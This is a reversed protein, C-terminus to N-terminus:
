DCSARMKTISNLTGWTDFDNARRPNGAGFTVATSGTTVAPALLDTVMQKTLIGKKEMAATDAKASPDTKTAERQANVLDAIERLSDNIHRSEAHMALVMNVVVDENESDKRSFRHPNDEMLGMKKAKKVFLKKQSNHAENYMAKLTANKVNETVEDDDFYIYAGKSAEEPNSVDLKKGDKDMAGTTVYPKSLNSLWQKRLQDKIKDLEKPDTPVTPMDAISSAVLTKIKINRWGEFLAKRLRQKLKGGQGDASANTLAALDLCAWDHKVPKGAVKCNGAGGHKKNDKWDNWAAWADDNMLYNLDETGAFDALVFLAGRETPEMQTKGGNKTKRQILYLLHSRSSEPNLGTDTVSRFERVRREYDKKFMKFKAPDKPITAESKTSQAKYEKHPGPNGYEDTSLTTQYHGEKAQSWTALYDPNVTHLRDLSVRKKDEREIPFPARSSCDKRSVNGEFFDGDKAKM